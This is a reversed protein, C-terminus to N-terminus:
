LSLGVLFVGFCNATNVLHCRARTLYDIDLDDTDM